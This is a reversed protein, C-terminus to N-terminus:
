RLWGVKAGMARTRASTIAAPPPIDSEFREFKGKCKGSFIVGPIRGDAAEASPLCGSMSLTV